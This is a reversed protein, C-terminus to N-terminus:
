PTPSGRLKEIGVVNDGEGAEGDDAVGNVSVSVSHGAGRSYDADVDPIRDLGARRRGTPRTGRAPASRTTGVRAACSTPGEFAQM